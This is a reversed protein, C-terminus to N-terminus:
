HSWITALITRELPRMIKADHATEHDYGLVHLIGHILLWSLEHQVSTQKSKAQRKAQSYDIVVEGGEDEYPFSLVDTVENVHRYHTNLKKMERDSVMVISVAFAKPYRVQKGTQAYVKKVFDTTLEPAACQNTLQISM